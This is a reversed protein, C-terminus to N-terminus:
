EIARRIVQKHKLMLRQLKQIAEKRHELSPAGERLFAARQLKLIDMPGSATVPAKTENANEEVVAM